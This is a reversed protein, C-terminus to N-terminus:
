FAGRFLEKAKEHVKSDLLTQFDLAGKHVYNGKGIYPPNINFPDDGDM